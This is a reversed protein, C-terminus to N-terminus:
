AIAEMKGSVYFLNEKGSQLIMAFGRYSHIIAGSSPLPLEPLINLFETLLGLKLNKSLKRHM